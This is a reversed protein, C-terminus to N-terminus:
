KSLEAIWLYLAQSYQFSPRRSRGQTVAAERREWSLPAGEASKRERRLGGHQPQQGDLIDDKPISRVYRYSRIEEFVWVHVKM